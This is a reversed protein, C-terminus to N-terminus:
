RSDLQAGSLYRTKIELSGIQGSTQSWYIAEKHSIQSPPKLWIDKALRTEVVDELRCLTGEFSFPGQSAHFLRKAHEVTPFFYIRTKRTHPAINEFQALIGPYRDHTSRLEGSMLPGRGVAEEPIAIDLRQSKPSASKM